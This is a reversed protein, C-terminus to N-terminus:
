TGAKGRASPPGVSVTPVGTTHMDGAQEETRDSEREKEGERQQTTKRWRGARTTRNSEIGDGEGGGREKRRTLDHPAHATSNHRRQHPHCCAGERHVREGGRGEGEEMRRKEKKGSGAERADESGRRDGRELRWAGQRMQLETFSSGEGDERRKTRGRERKTRRCPSSQQLGAGEERGGRGGGEGSRKRWRRTGSWGRGPPRRRPLPQMRFKEWRGGRTARLTRKKNEAESRAKSAQVCRGKRGAWLHHQPLALVRAGARTM